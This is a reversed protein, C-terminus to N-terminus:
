ESASFGAKIWAILQLGGLIAFIGSIYGTLAGLIIAIYEIGGPEFDVEDFLLYAAVLGPILSLVIALRKWGVNTCRAYLGFTSMMLYFGTAMTVLVILAERIHKSIFSIYSLPNKKLRWVFVGWEKECEEKAHISDMMGRFEWDSPIRYRGGMEKKKLSELAERGEIEKRDLIEKQEICIDFSAKDIYGDLVEEHNGEVWGNITLTAIIFVSLLIAIIVLTSQKSNILKKRINMTM